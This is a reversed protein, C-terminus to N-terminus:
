IKLLFRFFLLVFYFLKLRFSRTIESIPCALTSRTVEESRLRSVVYELTILNAKHLLRRWICCHIVDFGIENKSNRVFFDRKLQVVCQM